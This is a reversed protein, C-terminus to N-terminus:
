LNSIIAKYWKKKDSNNKNKKENSSIVIYCSSFVSAVILFTICASIKNNKDNNIEILEINYNSIINNKDNSYVITIKSDNDLVSSILNLYYYYEEILDYYEDINIYNESINNYYNYATGADNYYKLAIINYNDLKKSVDDFERQYELNDLKYYYVFDNIEKSIKTTAKQLRSYYIFKDNEDLIDEIQYPHFDIKKYNNNTIYFYGVGIVVCVIVTAIVKTYNEKIKNKINNLTLCECDVLVEDADKNSQMFYLFVILILFGGSLLNTSWFGNIFKMMYFVVFGFIVNRSTKYTFADMIRFTIVLIVPMILVGLYGLNAFADGILGNNLNTSANYFSNGLINSVSDPYISKFGAWNMIGNTFFDFSHQNFYMYYQNSIFPPLFLNRRYILSLINNTGLINVEFPCFLALAIILVIILRKYEKKYIFYSLLVVIISLAINKQATISFLVYQTFIMFISSVIKKKKLCYILLLPVIVNMLTLLYRTVMSMDYMKSELRIDYVNIFDTVLRFGTYKYSIYFVFAPIIILAAYFFFKSYNKSLMKIKVFGIKENAILLIFMYISSLLFYINSLSMMGYMTINPVFYILFMLFIIMDSFTDKNLLEIIYKISFYFVIWGLIYRYLSFDLIFGSYSFIPNIGLVFIIDIFVKYFILFSKDHKKIFNIIKDVIIKIREM